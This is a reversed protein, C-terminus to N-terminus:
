LGDTPLQDKIASLMSLIREYSRFKEYKIGHSPEKWWILQCIIPGWIDLSVIKM